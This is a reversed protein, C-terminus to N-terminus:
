IVLNESYKTLNQITYSNSKFWYTDSYLQGCESQYLGKDFKLLADRIEEKCNQLYHNPMEEHVGPFSKFYDMRDVHYIDNTTNSYKFVEFHYFDLDKNAIVLYTDDGVKTGKLLRAYISETPNPSDFPIFTQTSPHYLSCLQTNPDECILSFPSKYERSQQGTITYQDSLRQNAPGGQLIQMTINYFVMSENEKQLGIWFNHGSHSSQPSINLFSRTIGDYRKVFEAFTEGTKYAPYTNILEGNAIDRYFEYLFEVTNVFEGKINREIEYDFNLRNRKSIETEEITISGQSNTFQNKQNVINFLYIGLIILIGIIFFSKKNIM